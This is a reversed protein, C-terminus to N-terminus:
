EQLTGTLPQNHLTFMLVASKQLIHLVIDQIDERKSDTSISYSGDVIWEQGLGSKFTVEVEM